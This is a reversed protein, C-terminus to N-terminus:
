GTNGDETDTLLQRNIIKRMLKIFVMMVQKLCDEFASANSRNMIKSM